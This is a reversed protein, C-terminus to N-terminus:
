RREGDIRRVAAVLGSSPDFLAPLVAGGASRVRIDGCSDAGESATLGGGRWAFRVTAAPAPRGAPCHVAGRTDVPAANLIARLRELARGEVTMRVPRGGATAQYAVEAKRVTRPIVEAAPHPPQWIAMVDYRVALRTLSVQQWAIQVELQDRAHVAAFVVGDAGGNGYFSSVQRMDLRRGLGQAWGGFADPAANVYWIAHRDVLEPSGPIEQASAIPFGLASAPESGPYRPLRALVAAVRAEVRRQAPSGGGIAARVGAGLAAAVAVSLSAAAAPLLARSVWRFGHLM